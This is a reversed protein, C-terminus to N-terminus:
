IKNFMNKLTNNLTIQDHIRILYKKSGYMFEFGFNEYTKNKMQTFLFSHTQIGKVIIRRNTVLLDGKELQNIFEEHLSLTSNTFKAGCTEGKKLDVDVELIKIHRYLSFSREELILLDHKEIENLEIGVKRILKKFKAYSTEDNKYNLEAWRHLVNHLYKEVLEKDENKFIRKLKFRSLSEINEVNVKDAYFKRSYELDIPNMFRQLKIMSLNYFIFPVLGNIKTIQLQETLQM